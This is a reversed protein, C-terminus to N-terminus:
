RSVTMSSVRQYRLYVTSLRFCKRKYERECLHIYRCVKMVKMIAQYARELKGRMEEVKLKTKDGSIFM